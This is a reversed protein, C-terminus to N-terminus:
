DGAEVTKSPMDGGAAGQDYFRAVTSFDQGMGLRRGALRVLQTALNTVPAIVNLEEAIACARTMDKHIAAFDFGLNYSGSLVADPYKRLTAESRGSSANIISLARQLDLGQDTALSLIEATGIMAAGSIANNLAKLCHGSGLPGVHIVSQGIHRLLGIHRDYVARAGGVMVLLDGTEAGRVGGSVPADLMDVGLARFREGLERTLRPDSSTLDIFLAPTADQRVLEGATAEVDRADPLCTILVDAGRAAAAVTPTSRFGDMAGRSADYGILEYGAKMLRMAIPRGMRGLGVFAITTAANRATSTAADITM